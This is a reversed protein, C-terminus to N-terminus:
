AAILGKELCAPAFDFAGSPDPILLREDKDDYPMRPLLDKILNLRAERKNDTRVVAWRAMPHRTRALMENRAVSYEDWLKTAESDIPSTKRRKL